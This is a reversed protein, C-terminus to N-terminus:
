SGRPFAPKTRIGSGEEVLPETLRFPVLRGKAGDGGEGEGGLLGGAAGANADAIGQGHNGGDSSVTHRHCHFPGVEGSGREDIPRGVFDIPWGGGLFDGLPEVGGESGSQSM